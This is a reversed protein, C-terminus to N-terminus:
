ASEEKEIEAIFEQAKRALPHFPDDRLFERFNEVAMSREGMKRLVVAMNYRAQSYGSLNQRRSQRTGADTIKHDVKIGIGYSGCCRLPNGRVVSINGALFSKLIRSDAM